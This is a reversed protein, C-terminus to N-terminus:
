PQVDACVRLGLHLHRFKATMFGRNALHASRVDNYYGGGRMVYENGDVARTLEWANGVMDLVGYPSVSAPHSGVEDMGFGGERQGYTVDINADDRALSEGHPFSRGDSGRAAREWEVESCLRAGPVRGSSALWATYANADDPTIGSVPMRLWDQQQRHTREPYVILEGVRACYEADAPQIRLQWGSASRSLRIGGGAHMNESEIHPARRAREAPPLSELFEIWEAYTTETRSILYHGTAVEHMPMASFWVRMAEDERSGYLFSGPPVYAFGRPVHVHSPPPTQTTSPRAMMPVDRDAYLAVRAVLEDREAIRHERDALQAREANVDALARRTHDRGTDLLFAAELSRTAATYAARTSQSLERTRTWLADARAAEGRDFAALAATRQEDTARALVRAQVLTPQAEALRAAIREDLDRSAAIDAAAYAALVVTPIALALAIRTVKRRRVALRSAAIFASENPPLEEAALAAVDALQRQGWLREKARDLREWEATAAALRAHAAVAESNDALWGALMPWGDILREHALEFTPPDSGRAVVLRGRVLTDLVSRDYGALEDANRRARTREPTVLRLLLKRATERQAPVLAEFVADAHRALAGHVGGISELAGATITGAQDRADWLQALTFALLPLEVARAVTGDAVAAVLANVLASSEFSGGKARAPGVIAERTGDASLPPLLYLARTVESGLQPLEAVRTIFDSRVTALVRVGPVGAALRGLMEAARQAEERDGLTVLEELQDVFVLLGRSAGLARRLERTVDGPTSTILDILQTEDLLAIPALAAALAAVPHRGPVLRVARWQRGDALAGECVHPVVGARCLSSKGAGSDGAVLVFADARLREIVARIEAGRGFFLARHEAEFALLGRYPNGEPLEGGLVPVVLRELAERLEDGSAFRADPDRRLCREVIAAFRVGDAPVHPALVVDAGDNGDRLPARGRLLEYLVAGLQYVDSRRDAAGGARVEPALYLPTGAITGPQTLTVGFVNHTGRPWPRERGIKALGFDVLKVDGDASLIANAPKIDRHIIGHRHAAALGRALAIGLELVRSWAIPKTLKDLSDGRVYESVLFPRGALEGFRHVTVVNVHALRAAARAEIAFRERTHADPRDHAIFKIAVLRELLSDEALWVSGMGGRGLPRLLRYEDLEAPPTWGPVPIRAVAAVLSDVSEDDLEVV